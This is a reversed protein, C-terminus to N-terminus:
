EQLFKIYGIVLYLHESIKSRVQGTCRCQAADPVEFLAEGIAAAVQANNTLACAAHRLHRDESPM